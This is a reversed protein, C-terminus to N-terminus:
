WSWRIDDDWANMRKRNINTVYCCKEMLALEMWEMLVGYSPLELTCVINLPAIFM